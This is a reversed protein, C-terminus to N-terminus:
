VKYMPKRKAKTERPKRKEPISINILSWPQLEHHENDFSLCWILLHKLDFLNGQKTEGLPNQKKNKKRKRTREANSNKRYPTTETKSIYIETRLQKPTISTLFALATPHRVFMISDISGPPAYSILLWFGRYAWFVRIGAHKCLM